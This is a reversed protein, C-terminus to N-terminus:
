VRRLLVSDYIFEGQLLDSIIVLPQGPHVRDEQRLSDIAALITDEFNAQFDMRRCHVGRVLALLRCVREEETFAFIPAAKPRLHGAYRAMLGRRTFVFIASEELSDALVIASKVTKQKETKLVANAAYGKLNIREIRCAIRDFVEVCRQPYSGVSTEGSLMIADAQEYVANAVDTIEARTPTPNTIMSELMHTAVIVPTGEEICRRVTRRQIVPLEEYPVEMGLDGRAVMVADAEEIIGDLNSVAQQDEIKAVIEPSHNHEALVQRLQRLHAPDRVFSMAVWDAKIEAALQIDSLDKPTLGPLRLKVGPLNIHRRAGMTGPTLVRCFARDREVAIISFLLMGNDVLVTDGAKIDGFLGDYNTTTSFDCRPSTGTQRLEVEDGEALVWPCDGVEGTRISPGQLDVLVAVPKGVVDAAAQVRAASQRVWDPKAHSMNLRIVDVGTRILQEINEPSDTAPGLTAVIKTARM